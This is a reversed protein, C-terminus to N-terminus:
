HYGPGFVYCGMEEATMEAQEFRTELLTNMTVLGQLVGEEIVPLQLIDHATMKQLAEEVTERCNCITVDLNMLDRVLMSPAKDGHNAVARNIDIVSLVGLIAGRADCVVALRKGAEDIARAAAAMTEDQDIKVVKTQKTKLADGVLM